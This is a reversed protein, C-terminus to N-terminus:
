KEFGGGPYFQIYPYMDEDPRRSVGNDTVMERLEGSESLDFGPCDFPSKRSMKTNDSGSRGPAATGRMMM